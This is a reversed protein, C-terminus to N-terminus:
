DIRGLEAVIRLIVLSLHNVKKANKEIKGGEYNLSEPTGACLIWEPTSSCYM